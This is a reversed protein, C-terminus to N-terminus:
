PSTLERTCTLIAKRMPSRCDIFGNGDLDAHRIMENIEEETHQQGRSILVQRLEAASISGSNDQDFVKFAELLEKKPDKAHAPHTPATMLQMFEKAGADTFRADGIVSIQNRLDRGNFDIHGDGNPDIDKIISQVEALSPNLGLSRMAARFEEADISGSTQTPRIDADCGFRRRGPSVAEYGNWGQGVDM